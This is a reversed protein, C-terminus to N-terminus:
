VCGGQFFVVPGRGCDERARGSWTWFVLPQRKKEGAKGPDVKLLRKGWGEKQRGGQDLKIDNSGKKSRPNNHRRAWRRKKLWGDMWGDM